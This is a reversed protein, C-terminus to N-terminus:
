FFLHREALEQYAPLSGNQIGNQRRGRQIRERRKPVASEKRVTNGDVYSHTHYGSSQRTHTRKRGYNEWDTAM